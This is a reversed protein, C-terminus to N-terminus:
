LGGRGSMHRYLHGKVPNTYMNGGNNTHYHNYSEELKKKCSDCIYYPDEYIGDVYVAEHCETCVNVVKSSVPVTCINVTFIATIVIGFLITGLVVYDRLITHKNWFPTSMYKEMFKRLCAPM